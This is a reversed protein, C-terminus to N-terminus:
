NSKWLFEFFHSFVEVIGENYSFQPRYIRRVEEVGETAWIVFIVKSEDVITGRTKVREKDILKFEIGISKLKVLNINSQENKLIVRVKCGRKTAAILEDEVDDYWNFVHTFIDISKTASKIMEKTSVEAEKLSSFQSLLEKPNIVTHKQFYLRQAHDLFSNAIESFSSIQENYRLKEKEILSSVAEQPNEATYVRPRGQSVSVFDKRKLNDLADYSRALPIDAFKALEDAQSPGHDYLELLIKIEYNTFGLSQLITIIEEAVM